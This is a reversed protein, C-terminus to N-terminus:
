GWVREFAPTRGTELLWDFFAERLTAKGALAQFRPKDGDAVLRDFDAKSRLDLRGGIKVAVKGPPKARGLWLLAPAFRGDALAIPKTILPSALRDHEVGDSEIWIIEADDPERWKGSKSSEDKASKSNDHQRRFRVTIPLGFGARPWAPIPNHRPSHAFNGGALQRIKDAEPWNSVSPRGRGSQRGPERARWGDKGTVGQRFDRLARLAIEWAKQSSSEPPAVLLQANVLTPADISDGTPRSKGSDGWGLLRPLEARLSHACNGTAPVSPLWRTSEGGVLTLAGLGRRTRSGYGGFLIWAALAARVSQEHEDAVQVELRFQVDCLRPAPPRGPKRETGKEGRATWLVYAFPDNIGIDTCEEKGRNEVILSIVVASRQPKAGAKDEGRGGWVRQEDLWLDKHSTYRHAHVARWWFRLAGRISQTRIGGYADLARPAAGGGLIPTVARLVLSFDRASRLCGPLVRRPPPFETL